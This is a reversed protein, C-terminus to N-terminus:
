GPNATLEAAKPSTADAAALFASLAAPIPIKPPKPTKKVVRQTRFKRLDSIRSPLRKFLRGEWFGACCGMLREFDEEYGGWSTGNRANRILDTACLVADRGEATKTGEDHIVRKWFDSLTLGDKNTGAGWHHLSMFVARMVSARYGKKPFGIQDALLLAEKLEPIAEALFKESGVRCASRGKDDGTLTGQSWVKQLAHAFDGDKLRPSTLTLGHRRMTSYMLDKTTKSSEPPDFSHYLDRMETENAVTYIEVMVQAPKPATGLEWGLTRTHGDIKVLKGNPGIKAAAVSRLSEVGSRLHKAIRPLHALTNRQEPYDPIDRWLNYAMKKHIM